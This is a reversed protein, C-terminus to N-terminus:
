QHSMQGPILSIMALFAGGSAWEAAGTFFPDWKEESMAMSILMVLFFFVGFSFIIYGAIARDRYADEVQSLYYVVLCMIVPIFIFAAAAALKHLFTKIIQELDDSEPNGNFFAVFVLIVCGTIILAMNVRDERLCASSYALIGGVALITSIWGGPTRITWSISRVVTRDGIVSYDDDSPFCHSIIWPVFGYFVFAFVAIPVYPIEVAGPCSDTVNVPFM